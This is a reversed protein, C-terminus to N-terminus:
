MAGPCVTAYRSDYEAKIFANGTLASKTLSFQELFTTQVRSLNNRNQSPAGSRATEPGNVAIMEFSQGKALNKRM